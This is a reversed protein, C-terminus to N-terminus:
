ALCCLKKIYKLITAAHTAPNNPQFHTYDFLVSSPLKQNVVLEFGRPLFNFPYNNSRIWM